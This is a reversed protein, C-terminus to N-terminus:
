VLQLLVLHLDLQESLHPQLLERVGEPLLELLEHVLVEGLLLQGQLVDDVLLLEFDLEEFVQLPLGEVQLHQAAHVAIL